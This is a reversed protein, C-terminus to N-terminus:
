RNNQGNNEILILVPKGVDSIQDLKEKLELASRWTKINDFTVVNEEPARNMRSDTGSALSSLFAQESQETIGEIQVQYAFDLYKEEDTFPESSQNVVFANRFYSNQQVRNLQQAITLSDERNDPIFVEYEGQNSNYSIETDMSLKIASLAAFEEADQRREFSGIKIAALQTTETPAETESSYDIVVLAPNIFQSNSIEYYQALAERPDGQTRTRVAYMNTASNRIVSVRFGFQQQAIQAAKAATAVTNYSGLQVQFIANDPFRKGQARGAADTDTNGTIAEDGRTQPYVTFSLGEIFDGNALAEVQFKITDPEATANLFELQNPDIYLNYDGPPIEYSYFSGDSFTRLEETFTQDKNEIYLRVGALGNRTSDNSQKFVRGDVVGSQYFPIDIPKFQNPDTVFSFQKKEPILLPNTIANQNVELNIRNYSQLRLLRIIGNKSMKTEASRSIRVANDKIIEEGPEFEGSNNNDVFLRVSAASRGVQQRNSLFLDNNHSDYGISGRLSQTANYNDRITRISTTSRAFNFDFSINLSAVLFDGIFNKGASMLMRGNKFLDKSFQLDVQELQDRYPIYDARARLYSGRLYRPIGPIRSISYSASGSLRSNPTTIFSLPGIQRDMYGFRLTAKRIRTSLDIRYRTDYFDGIYKRNAAIRFNVPVSGLSIPLFFSGQIRHDLKNRNYISEGNYRTYELSFSTSSPYVANTSIRYYTDPSINLNVLYEQAIRSSFSSYFIPRDMGLEYVYESGLTGTLWNTFGYRVNSQGFIKRSQDEASVFVANDTLGANVSYNFEGPPIFNFPIQIRRSLEEIQGNPKYIVTRFRAGGYSLPVVFRYNGLEDSVQFDILSNNLYLEVESEPVTNGDIVYEDFVIRPEIPDNSLKLGTYNRNSLGDSNNQGLQITSIAPNERIAYRWRLGNTTFNSTESSYTGLVSGQLDGGMLETGLNFNYSYLDTHRSVSTTFSYDLFAGGLLKRDREYLLDYYSRSLNYNTMNQRQKKREVEMTLPLKRETELHMTLNNFDVQFNLGLIEDFIEAHLYYDLERILFDEATIDYLRKDSQIFQDELNILFSEDTNFFNVTATLTQSDISHNIKLITLLEDLPLYFRNNDPEYYAIVVTNLLNRYRLTLYVEQPDERENRSYSPTLPLQILIVLFVFLIVPKTVKENM